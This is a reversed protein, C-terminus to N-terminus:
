IMSPKLATFFKTLKSFRGSEVLQDGLTILRQLETPRGRKRSERIINITKWPILEGQIGLHASGKLLQAKLLAEELSDIQRPPITHYAKSDCSKELGTLDLDGFNISEPEEIMYAIFDPSSSGKSIKTLDSPSQLDLDM